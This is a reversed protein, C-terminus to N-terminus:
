NQSGDFSVFIGANLSECRLFSLTYRAIMLDEDTPMICLGVRSEPRSVLLKKAANAAPDLVVSRL